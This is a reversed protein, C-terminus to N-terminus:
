DLSYDDVGGETISENWSVVAGWADSLVKDTITVRQADKLFFNLERITQYLMWDQCENLFFDEDVGCTSMGSTLQVAGTCNVGATYTGDIIPSIVQPVFSFPFTSALRDTLLWESGNFWIFYNVGMTQITGQMMYLTQTNFTGVENYVGCVNPNLNGEGLNTVTVIKNAGYPQAWLVADFNITPNSVNQWLNVDNPWVYVTNGQRIVVPVDAYVTVTDRVKTPDFMVREWAANFRQYFRERSILDAPRSVTPAVQYQVYARELKMVPAIINTGHFVATSLDGGNMLDVVVDVSSRALEFDLLKQAALKARNAAGLLIDVGNNTFSDPTRNMYAAVLYKFQTIDM